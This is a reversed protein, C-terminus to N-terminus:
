RYAERRHRVRLIEVVNPEPSRFRVRWDGARLRFEAPSDALRVIDGHGTEAYRDLAALIRRAIPPDLKDIDDQAPPSWRFRKV